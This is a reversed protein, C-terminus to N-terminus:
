AVKVGEIEDAVYCEVPRRQSSALAGLVDAFPVNEGLVALLRAGHEVRQEVFIRISAQFAHLREFDELHVWKGLEASRDLDDLQEAVPLAIQSGDALEFRM